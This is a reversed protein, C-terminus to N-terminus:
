LKQPYGALLSAREGDQSRRVLNCPNPLSSFFNSCCRSLNALRSPSDAQAEVPTPQASKRCCIAVVLALFLTIGIALAIAIIAKADEPTGTNAVNKKLIGDVCASSGWDSYLTCVSGGFTGHGYHKVTWPDTPCFNNWESTVIWCQEKLIPLLKNAQDDICTLKEKYESDRAGLFCISSEAMVREVFSALLFGILYMSYNAASNRYSHRM